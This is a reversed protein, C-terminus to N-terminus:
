AAVRRLWVDVDDRRYRPCGESLWTVRPGHGERRWRCLTSPSVRLWEAVEASTLYVSEQPLAFTTM